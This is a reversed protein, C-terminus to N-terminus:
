RQLCFLNARSSVGRPKPGRKKPPPLMCRDGWRPGWLGGETFSLLCSSLTATHLPQRPKSAGVGPGPCGACRGGDRGAGRGVPGPPVRPVGELCGEKGRRPGGLVSQKGLQLMRCGRCKDNPRQLRQFGGENNIQRKEQCAQASRFQVDFGLHLSPSLVM